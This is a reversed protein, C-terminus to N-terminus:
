PRGGKGKGRPITRKGARLFPSLLNVLREATRKSLTPRGTFFFELIQVLMIGMLASSIWEANALPRKPVGERILMSIMERERKFEGVFNFQPYEGEPAFMSRFMLLVSNPDKRCNRFESSVYLILRERLSGKYKSLQLLNKRTQNFLDLMLEQFLHEKSRFHYYLVPKTVGAAACIERISSGAYGKRAFLEIAKNLIETRAGKM